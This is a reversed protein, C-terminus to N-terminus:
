HGAGEAAKFGKAKKAEAQFKQARDAYDKFLGFSACGPSLLVADADLAQAAAFAKEVAWRMAAAGDKEEDCMEYPRKALELGKAVAKRTAGILFAKAVKATFDPALEAFDAGKDSGGAILVVPKTFASLAARLAQPTTAKSDDVFRVGAATGITEIRHPLGGVKELYKKTRKSCIKAENAVVAVALLNLANHDGKLAMGSLEYKARGSVFLKGNEVRDRLVAIQPESGPRM